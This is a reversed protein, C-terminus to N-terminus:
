PAPSGWPTASLAFLVMTTWKEALLTLVARSGYQRDFVTLLADDQTAM